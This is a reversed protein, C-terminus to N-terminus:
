CSGLEWLFLEREPPPSTPHLRPAQSRNIVDLFVLLRIAEPQGGESSVAMGGTSNLWALFEESAVPTQRRWEERYITGVTPLLGDLKGRRMAVALPAALLPEDAMGKLKQVCRSIKRQDEVPRFGPSIEALIRWRELDGLAGECFEFFWQYFGEYRRKKFVWKGWDSLSRLDIQEVSFLEKQQLEAGEGDEVEFASLLRNMQILADSKGGEKEPLGALWKRYIEGTKEPPAKLIKRSFQYNRHSDPRHALMVSLTAETFIIGKREVGMELLHGMANLFRDFVTENGPKKLLLQHYKRAEESVEAFATLGSVGLLFFIIWM